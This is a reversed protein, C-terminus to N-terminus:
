ALRFSLFSRALFNSGLIRWGLPKAVPLDQHTHIDLSRITKIEARCRAGKGPEDPHTQRVDLPNVFLEPLFLILFM